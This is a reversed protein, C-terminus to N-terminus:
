AGEAHNETYIKRRELGDGMIPDHLYKAFNSANSM